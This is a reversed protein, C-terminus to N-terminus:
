ATRGVLEPHKLTLYERLAEPWPRLPALGAKELARHAFVSYGPRTAKAGSQATSQPGLEPKLGTLEFIKAAFEFWTCDGRNTIHYLGYATTGALEVVKRALDLTFTPTLRQDNVVKLPKGSQALKIMTEVFNGGKGFSGAVGYLGCTRVVFHKPCYFRAFYEGAVKTVGYVSEPAPADTETLPTTRTRDGGFVYDTSFHVFASDLERCLKALHLVAISNVEFARPVNDELADVRHYASTNIVVDPRHRLLIERTQVHECVDIDNWYLPVFELDSRPKLLSVLDTGLQGDAGILVIKRM